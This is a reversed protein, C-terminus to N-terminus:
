LAVWRLLPHAPPMFCVVHSLYAAKAAIMIVIIALLFGGLAAALKDM